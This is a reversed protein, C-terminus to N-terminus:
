GDPKPNELKCDVNLAQTQRGSFDHLPKLLRLAWASGQASASPSSTFFGKMHVRLAWSHATEWSVLSLEEATWLLLREKISKLKEAPNNLAM